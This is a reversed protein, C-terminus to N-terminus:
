PSPPFPPIFGVSEIYAALNQEMKNLKHEMKELQISLPPASTSPITPPAVTDDDFEDDSTAGSRAYLKKPLQTPGPETFQFRGEKFEVVGTREFVSMDLFEKKCAPHLDNNDPDLVCLNIALLTIYPGLFLTRYRKLVSQFKDVLWFGLNPRVDNLM